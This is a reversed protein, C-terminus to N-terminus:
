NNEENEGTEKIHAENNVLDKLAKTFSISDIVTIVHSGKKMIYAVGDKLLAKGGM